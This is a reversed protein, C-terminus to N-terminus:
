PKGALFTEGLLSSNSWPVQKNHTAAVVEARVRTLMLQVDLGPTSIHRVLAASFPSNAGDGDLAVAGPATAFAILTGAGLTAGKGLEGPAALGTGIKLSRSAAAQAVEQKILPNDRCADLIVINTRIRDDLGALITDLATMDATFNARSSIKADVPLLYNRGGIQVGHGAYFLLAIDAKPARLLFGRIARALGEHDLDIGESVDFGIGRLASAVLRADNPPNPLVAAGEYAGNGVVLAIRVRTDKGKKQAPAPATAPAPAASPTTGELVALRAKATAREHFATELYLGQRGIHSAAQPVTLAAKYVQRAADIEGRAELVQGKTTLAVVSRPDLRIARDLDDLAKQYRGKSRWVDARGAYASGTTPDVRIAHSFDALSKDLQGKKSWVIGRNVVAPIHDPNLKIARNCDALASDLDGKEQLINCRNAYVSFIDPALKAASDLDALALDLENKAAFATSRNTYLPVNKPNYKLGSTMVEIARDYEGKYTLVYGLTNYAAALQADLKIAKEGDAVALDFQGLEARAEGRGAYALAFGPNKRIALDYDAIAREHQGLNGYAAGRQTYIMALVKAPWKRRELLRTCGDIRAQWNTSDCAVIDRDAAMVTTAFAVVLLAGAVAPALSFHFRM